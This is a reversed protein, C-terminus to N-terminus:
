EKTTEHTVTVTSTEVVTPLPSQKLFAFFNSVSGAVLITGLAKWNLVPVDIGLGKATALAMWSSGATAAGLIVGTFLGRIWAKVSQPIATWTTKWSM